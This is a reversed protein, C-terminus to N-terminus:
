VLLSAKRDDMFRSPAFFIVNNFVQRRTQDKKGFIRASRKLWVQYLLNMLVMVISWLSRWLRKPRNSLRHLYANKVSFNGNLVWKKLENWYTVQRRSEIICILMWSTTSPVWLHM